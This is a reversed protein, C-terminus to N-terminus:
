VDGDVLLVLFVPTPVDLVTAIGFLTFIIPWPEVFSM